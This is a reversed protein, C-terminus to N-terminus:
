TCRTRIGESARSSFPTQLGPTLSMDQAAISSPPWPRQERHDRDRCYRLVAVVNPATLTAPAPEAVTLIM